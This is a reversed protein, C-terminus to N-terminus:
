GTHDEFLSLIYNDSITQNEAEDHRYITFRHGEYKNLGDQTGFWLFGRKDQLISLITHQSLGQETTLHDFKFPYVAALQQNALLPLSYTLLTVALLWRTMSYNMCM